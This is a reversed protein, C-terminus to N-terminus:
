LNTYFAVISTRVKFLAEKYDQSNLLEKSINLKEDLKLSIGFYIIGYIDYFHTNNIGKNDCKITEFINLCSRHSIHSSLFGDNFEYLEEMSSISKLKGEGYYGVFKNDVLDDIYKDISSKLRKYKSISIQPTDHQGLISCIFVEFFSQDNYMMNIMKKPVTFKKDECTFSIVPDSATHTYGDPLKSSECIYKNPPTTMTSTM